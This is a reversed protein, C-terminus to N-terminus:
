KALTTPLIQTRLSLLADGSVSGAGNGALPVDILLARGGPVPTATIPERIPGRPGAASARANLTAIADRIAPGTLDTGTVVVQTPSPTQPFAQQIKDIAQLVPSSAPLDVAPSGLRM